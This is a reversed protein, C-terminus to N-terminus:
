LLPGLGRILISVVVDAKKLKTVLSMYKKFIYHCSVHFNRLNLMTVDNQKNLNVRSM